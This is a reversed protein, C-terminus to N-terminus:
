IRTTLWARFDAHVEPHKLACDVMAQLYGLKNGCDYREGFFEYAVVRESELLVAIADTLQIEDGIGKSTKELIEMIRGPLIYRGAVALNSPAEQPSPKEIIRLIQSVRDGVSQGEIIGYRETEDAAVSEVAIISAKHTQFQEVMQRLCGKADGCILDDALM